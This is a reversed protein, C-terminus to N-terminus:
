VAQLIPQLTRPTKLDRSTSLETQKNGDAMAQGAGGVWGGKMHTKLQKRMQLLAM